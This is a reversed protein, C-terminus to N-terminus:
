RGGVGIPVPLLELEPTVARGVVDLGAPDFREAGRYRLVISEVPSALRLPDLTCTLGWADGAADFSVEGQDRCPGEV